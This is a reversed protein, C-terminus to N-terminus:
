TQPSIICKRQGNMSVSMGVSQGKIPYIQRYCWQGRPECKIFKDRSLIMIKVRELFHPSNALWSFINQNQFYQCIVNLITIKTKTFVNLITILYMAQLGIYKRKMKIWRGNFNWFSQKDNRTIEHVQFKKNKSRWTNLVNINLNTGFPSFYSRNVM